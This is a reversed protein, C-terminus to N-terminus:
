GFFAIVAMGILVILLELEFSDGVAFFTMLCQVPFNSVKIMILCSERQIAFMLLYGAIFAM